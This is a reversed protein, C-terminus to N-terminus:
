AAEERNRHAAPRRSILDSFSQKDIYSRTIQRTHALQTIHRPHSHLFAQAIAYLNPTKGNRTMRGQEVLNLIGSKAALKRYRIFAAEDACGPIARCEPHTLAINGNNSGNYRRLATLIIWRSPLPLHNLEPSDFLRYTLAAFGESGYGCANTAILDVEGACLPPDCSTSNLQQLRSIVGSPNFGQRALGCALGFLTTNRKGQPIRKLPTRAERLDASVACLGLEVRIDYVRYPSELRLEVIRSRYPINKRHNFGPVRMVRCLDNVKDGDFRAALTKQLPKFEQLSCDSVLWYAHWRGPSSEVICHAKLKSAQVPELPAGDLDVFLARVRRVNVAKRGMGDGENVMVFVGAGRANLAALSDAHQALTGHLVRSLKRDKGGSDDFTQFTHKDGLLALFQAANAHTTTVAATGCASMADNCPESLPGTNM